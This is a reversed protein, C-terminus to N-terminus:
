HSCAGLLDLIGTFSGAESNSDRIEKLAHRNAMAGEGGEALDLLHQGVADIMYIMGRLSDANIGVLGVDVSM